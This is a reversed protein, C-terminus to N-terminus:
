AARRRLTRWACLAEPSVVFATALAIFHLPILRFEGHSEVELVPDMFEPEISVEASHLDAAFGAVPGLLAWLRGTDAPDGLGIRLRFYLDHAHTARLVDKIFRISRRRFASQRLLAFVGHAHPGSRLKGNKKSPKHKRHPGAKATGPIGIRFRVLGYLWHFNLHGTIETIRDVRFAVTVPM